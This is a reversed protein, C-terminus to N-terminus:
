GGGESMTSLSMYARVLQQCLTMQTLQIRSHSSTQRHELQETLELSLSELGLSLFSPNQDATVTSSINNQEESSVNIQQKECLM